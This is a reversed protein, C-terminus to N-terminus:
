LAFFNAIIKAVPFIEFKVEFLVPLCGHREGKAGGAFGRPKRRPCKVAAAPSLGAVNSAGVTNQEAFQTPRHSADALM